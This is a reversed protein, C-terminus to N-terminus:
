QKDVGARVKSLGPVRMWSLFIGPVLIPRAGLKKRRNCNRVSTAGITPSVVLHWCAVQIFPSPPQALFGCNRRKLTVTGTAFENVFEELQRFGTSTCGGDGSSEHISPIPDDVRDLEIGIPWSHAGRM